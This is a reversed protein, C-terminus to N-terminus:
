TVSGGRNLVSYILNLPVVKGADKKFNYLTVHMEVDEGDVNTCILQLNNTWNPIGPSFLLQPPPNWMVPAHAGVSGLGPILPDVVLLSGMAVHEGTQLRVSVKKTVLVNTIEINVWALVSSWKPDFTLGLTLFGASGDAEQSM